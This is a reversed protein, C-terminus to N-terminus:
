EGAATESDHLGSMAIFRQSPIDRDPSGGITAGLDFFREGRDEKDIDDPRGFFGRPQANPGSRSGCERAVV